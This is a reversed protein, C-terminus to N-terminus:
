AACAWKAGPGAPLKCYAPSSNADGGACAASNLCNIGYRPCGGATVPPTYQFPRGSASAIALTTCISGGYAYDMMAANNGFTDFGCVNATTGNFTYSRLWVGSLATSGGGSVMNCESSSIIAASSESAAVCAALCFFSALILHKTNMSKRKGEKLTYSTM